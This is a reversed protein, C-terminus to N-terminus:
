NVTLVELKANTAAIATQLEKAKLLAEEREIEQKQKLAEARAVLAAREDEVKLRASSTTPSVVSAPQSDLREKSYTSAVMSASDTPEVETDIIKAEDVQLWKEVREVFHRLDKDKPEFCQIRDQFVGEENMHAKVADNVVCFEMHKDSFETAIKSSVVEANCDEEM